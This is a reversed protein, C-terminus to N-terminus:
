LQLETLTILPAALLTIEFDAAVEANVNVNGQLVSGAYRVEVAAGSFAAPGLQGYLSDAGAGSSLTDNGDGGLLTENGVGGQVSDASARANVVFGGTARAFLFSDDSDTGRFEDIGGIIANTLNVVGAVSLQLSDFSSNGFISEVRGLQTATLTVQNNGIQLVEIGAIKAATLDVRGIAGLGQLDLTDVDAGGNITEALASVESIGAIQIVDNCIGGQVNDTGQGGILTDAGKAGFLM